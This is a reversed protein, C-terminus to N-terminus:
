VKNLFKICETGAVAGDHVAKAIQLLGGTCDGAAFLGPVNTQMQENVIIKKGDTLVGVKKALDFSGAIGEAVFIGSVPVSKGSELLIASVTKEGKIEEIKETIVKVNEPFAVEPTKGNTFVTLDDTVNLLVNAEHLAYEGAGIVGIAKKRFFFGDCIACYSVGKGEFDRIGKINPINKAVGTALIVANATYDTDASVTFKKGDFSLSVVQKDMVEVGLRKAQAIGNAILQKGSIPEPFGYYNEILETKSLAGENKGIVAVKKNARAIYLSASIGAPGSGIIIVDYM